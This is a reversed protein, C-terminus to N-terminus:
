FCLLSHFALNGFVEHLQAYNKYLKFVISLLAKLPIGCVHYVTFYPLDWNLSSSEESTSVPIPSTPACLLHVSM